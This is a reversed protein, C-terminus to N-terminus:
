ELKKRPKLINGFSTAVGFLLEDDGATRYGLWPTITGNYFSAVGIVPIATLRAQEDLSTAGAIGLYGLGLVSYNQAYVEFGPGFMVGTGIGDDGEAGQIWMQADQAEYAPAVRFQLSACGFSIFALIVLILKNM